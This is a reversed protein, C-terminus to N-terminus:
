WVVIIQLKGCMIFPLCYHVGFAQPPARLYLEDMDEPDFLARIRSSSKMTSLQLFISIAKARESKRCTMLTTSTGITVVQEPLM